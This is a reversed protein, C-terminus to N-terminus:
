DRDPQRDRCVGMELEPERKRLGAGHTHSRREFTRASGLRRLQGSTCGNSISGSKRNGADPGHFIKGVCPLTKLLDAEVSVNMIPELRQEASEIQIELFDLTALEQEVAERSHTPLEPLRAGLKLRAAVGFLDAGPIQV